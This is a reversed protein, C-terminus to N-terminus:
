GDSDLSGAKWPTPLTGAPDALAVIPNLRAEKEFGIKSPLTKLDLSKELHTFDQNENQAKKIRIDDKTLNRSSPDPTRM